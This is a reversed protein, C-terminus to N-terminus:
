IYEALVLLHELNQRYREDKLPTCLDLSVEGGMLKIAFSYCSQEGCEGCNTQPLYKYIEMPQEVRVKERLAPAVGKAIAENITSRLDELVKRAEAEDRIMTM